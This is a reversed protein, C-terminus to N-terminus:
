REALIGRLRSMARSLRVKANNKTISLAVALEDVDLGDWFHLLLVEQDPQKLRSLARHLEADAIMEDEASPAHGLAILRSQMTRRRHHKRRANNLVNHAVGIMWPLEFGEPVDDIRRWTVELVDELLDELDAESLPYARRRLYSAIKPSCDHALKRLREDGTPRV